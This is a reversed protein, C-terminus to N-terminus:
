RETKPTPNDLSVIPGPGNRLFAPIPTEEESDEASPSTNRDQMRQEMGAAVEDKIKQNIQERLRLGGALGTYGIDDITHDPIPSGYVNRAKKVLSMMELVDVADFRVTRTGIFGMSQLKHNTYTNWLEAIMTFSAELDGHQQGRETSIIKAADGMLTAAIERENPM